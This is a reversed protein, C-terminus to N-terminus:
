RTSNLRRALEERLDSSLEGAAGWAIVLESVQRLEINTHMSTERLLDWAEAPTLGGVAVIVCIAQDILAHADAQELHAFKGQLDKLQEDTRPEPEPVTYSFENAHSM